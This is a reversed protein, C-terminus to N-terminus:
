AQNSKLPLLKKHVKDLKDKENKANKKNLHKDHGVEEEQALLVEVVKRQM